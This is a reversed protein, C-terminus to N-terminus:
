KDEVKDGTDAPKEEKPPTVMPALKEVLPIVLKANALNYTTQTLVNFIITLEQKTLSVTVEEM